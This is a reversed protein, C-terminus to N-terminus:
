YGSFVHGKVKMIYKGDGQKYSLIYKSAGKKTNKEKRLRDTENEISLIQVQKNNWKEPRRKM